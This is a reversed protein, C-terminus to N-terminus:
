ISVKFLSLVKEYASLNGVVRMEPSPSKRLLTPTVIINEGKALEANQYIDIIELRYKRKALYLLCINKLNRVAQISNPSMGTIFLRLHLYESDEGGLKNNHVENTYGTM